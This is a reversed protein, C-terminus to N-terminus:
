AVENTMPRLVYGQGRRTQILPPVGAQELKRRLTSIVSEVANSFIETDDGYTHEEIEARSVVTGERRVLLELM